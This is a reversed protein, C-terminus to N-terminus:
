PISSITSNKDIIVNWSNIISKSPNSQIAEAFVEIVQNNGESDEQLEIISSEALLNLTFEDPAVTKKYYYTDNEGKIWDNSYDFELEPSQKAIINNNNEWYSVLRVRIYVPINSTNKVKIETKESVADNTTEIVKCSVAAPIFTNEKYDTQKSMYAIVTSSFVIILAIVVLLIIYKNRKQM